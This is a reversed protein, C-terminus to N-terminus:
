SLPCTMNNTNDLTTALALITGRDLSALADNVAGRIGNAFRPDSAWPEFPSPLSRRLPYGISDHAANLYAAVAARVLITTAGNLGPGGGGNLATLMDESGFSSLSAPFTWLNGLKYTTTYEQWSTTHNKWYGPTCGQDNGVTTAGAPIGLLFVGAVTAGALMKVVRKGFVSVGLTLRRRFGGLVFQRRGVLAYPAM